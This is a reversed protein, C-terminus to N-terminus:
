RNQKEYLKAYTIFVSFGQYISQIIGIRGDLIGLKLFLRRFIEMSTKRFLTFTTVSKMNGELFQTSETDSYRNTKNIIFELSEDKRHHLPYKLKKIEGEVVPSSHINTPWSIFDPKYILRIVYDDSWGGYKLRYGLSYNKRLIAYASAHDPSNITRMIEDQLNESVIEDFDLILVWDTNTKKVETERFEEVIKNEYASLDLPINTLNYTQIIKKLRQNPTFMTYIIHDDGFKSAKLMNELTDLNDEIAIQTVVTLKNM